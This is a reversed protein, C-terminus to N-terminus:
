ETVEYEETSVTAPSMVHGSFMMQHHWQDFDIEFQKPIDELTPVESFDKVRSSWPCPRTGEVPANDVLEWWPIEGLCTAHHLKYQM